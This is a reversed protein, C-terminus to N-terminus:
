KSGSQAAEAERLIDLDDSEPCNHDFDCRSLSSWKAHYILWRQEYSLPKWMLKTPHDVMALTVPTGVPGLIGIGVSSWFNPQDGYKATFDELNAAYNYAGCAAWLIIVTLIKLARKM